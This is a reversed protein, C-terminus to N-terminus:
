GRITTTTSAVGLSKETTQPNHDTCTYITSADTATPIGIITAELLSESFSPEESLFHDM